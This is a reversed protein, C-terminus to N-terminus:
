LSPHTLTQQTVNSNKILPVAPPDCHTLPSSPLETTILSYKKQPCIIKNIKNFFIKMNGHWYKRKYLEPNCPLLCGRKGKPNEGKLRPAPFHACLKLIWVGDILRLSALAPDASGCLECFHRWIRLSKILRPMVQREALTHAQSFM